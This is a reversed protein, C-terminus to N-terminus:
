TMFSKYCMDKLHNLKVSLVGSITTVPLKENTIQPYKRKLNTQSIQVQSVKVRVSGSTVITIEGTKRFHVGFTAESCNAAADM